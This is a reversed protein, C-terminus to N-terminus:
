KAAGALVCRQLAGHELQTQLREYWRRIAETRRREREAGFPLARSRACALRQDRALDALQEVRDLGLHDVPGLDQVLVDALGLLLHALQKRVRLAVLRRECLVRRQVHDDKVLDICDALRAARRAAARAHVVADDVRQQGLDVADVREVVDQEDTRAAAANGGCGRWTQAAARLEALTSRKMATGGTTAQAGVHSRPFASWAVRETATCAHRVPRVQEVLCKRPRPADLELDLDAQGVLLAAQLDELDM